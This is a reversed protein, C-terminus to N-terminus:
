HVRPGWALGAVIRAEAEALETWREKV